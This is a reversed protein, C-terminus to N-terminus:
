KLLIARVPSADAGAFPLPLAILDYVDEAVNELVIGELIAMDNRAVASHSELIKDNAPDISPTDIGVLKVGCGNLYEILEGSLSMFDSNWKYPDPFSLTKFLVRPAAIKKEVLDSVQIRKGPQRKVEIVQAPGIYTDLAVSEISLGSKKYHNPADTHAGLHLTTEIASLTLHAGNKMDLAIKRSFATDGPFVAIDSRIVPTIDIIKRGNFSQM